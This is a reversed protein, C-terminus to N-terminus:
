TRLVSLQSLSPPPPRGGDRQRSALISRVTVSRRPWRHRGGPPLVVLLFLILLGLCVQGGPHKHAPAHQSPDNETAHQSPHDAHRDAAVMSTVLNAPIGSSDNPSASAQLGHMALLGTLLAILLATWAVPGYWHLRLPQPVSM